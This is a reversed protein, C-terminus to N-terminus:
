RTYEDAVAGGRGEGGSALFRSATAKSVPVYANGDEDTRVEPEVPGEAAEEDENDSDQKTRKASPATSLPATRKPAVSSAKKFGTRKPPGAM